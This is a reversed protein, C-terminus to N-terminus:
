VIIRFMIRRAARAYPFVKGRKRSQVLRQPKTFEWRVVLSRGAVGQLRAKGMARFRTQQTSRDPAPSRRFFGACVQVQSLDVRMNQACPVRRFMRVFGGCLKGAFRSYEM